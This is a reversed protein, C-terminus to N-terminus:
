LTQKVPAFAAPCDPRWLQGPNGRRRVRNKKGSRCRSGYYQLIEDADELSMSNALPLNWKEGKKKAGALEKDFSREKPYNLHMFAKADEVHIADLLGQINKRYEPGDLRLEHSGKYGRPYDLCPCDLIILGVGGKARARYFELMKPNVRSDTAYKTPYLSMIIRNKLLCEGIAGSSFLHPFLM